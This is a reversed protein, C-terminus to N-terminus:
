KDRGEVVNGVSSVHFSSTVFSLSSEDFEQDDRNRSAIAFGACVDRLRDKAPAM